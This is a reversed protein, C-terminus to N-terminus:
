SGGRKFPWFGLNFIIEFVNNKTQAEVEKKMEKEPDKITIKNSYLPRDLSDVPLFLVDGPLYTQNDIVIKSLVEFEVYEVGDEVM